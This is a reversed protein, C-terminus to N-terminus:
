PGNKVERKMFENIEHSVSTKKIKNKDIILKKYDSHVDEDVYM